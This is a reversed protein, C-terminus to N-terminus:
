RRERGHFVRTIIVQEEIVRYRIVYISRGFAANLERTLSGRPRGREPLEVLSAMAAELVAGVRLAASPNKDLLWLELRDVDLAARPSVIVTYKV